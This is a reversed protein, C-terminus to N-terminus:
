QCQCHVNANAARWVTHLQVRRRTGEGDDNGCGEDEEVGGESVVVGVDCSM